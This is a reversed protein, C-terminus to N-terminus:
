NMYFSKANEYYVLYGLITERSLTDDRVAFIRM